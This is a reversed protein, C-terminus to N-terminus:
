LDRGDPGTIKVVPAIRPDPSLYILNGVAFCPYAGYVEVVVWNGDALSLEVQAVYETQGAAHDKATKGGQIVKVELLPRNSLIKVNLVLKAGGAVSFTEGPIKGGIDTLVM